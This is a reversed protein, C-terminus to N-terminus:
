PPKSTTSCSKNFVKKLFKVGEHRKPRRLLKQGRVDEMVESTLFLQSMVISPIKFLILSIFKEKKPHITQNHHLSNLNVTFTARGLRGM